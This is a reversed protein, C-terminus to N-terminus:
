RGAGKKDKGRKKHRRMAIRIREIQTKEKMRAMRRRKEIGMKKEKGKKKSDKGKHLM